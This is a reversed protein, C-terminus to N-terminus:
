KLSPAKDFLILRRVGVREVCLTQSYSKAPLRAPVLLGREPSWPRILLPIPQRLLDDCLQAFGLQGLLLCLLMNKDAQGHLRFGAEGDAARWFVAPPYALLLMPSGAIRDCLAELAAARRAPDRLFSGSVSLGQVLALQGAHEELDTGYIRSLAELFGRGPALLTQSLDLIPDERGCPAHSVPRRRLCAGQFREGDVPHEFGDVSSAGEAGHRSAKSTRLRM